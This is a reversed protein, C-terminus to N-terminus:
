LSQNRKRRIAAAVGSLGTGLLLLTAPEPTPTNRLGPVNQGPVTNFQFFANTITSNATVGAVNIVFTVEGYLFPNHPANGNISGNANAYSGSGTGGIISREPAVAPQNVTCIVCVQLGASSLGGATTNSNVIWGTSVAGGTPTAIGGSIDTLTGSSSGLTGNTQGTSVNFSIGTINQAVGIVQANTLLNRVTITVTGNGTTFTASANVPLGQNTAGGATNFTVVDARATMANGIVLVAFALTSLAIKRLLPM